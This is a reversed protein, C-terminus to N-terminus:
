GLKINKLSQLFAVVKHDDGHSSWVARLFDAPHVANDRFFKRDGGCGYMIDHCLGGKLFCTAKQIIRPLWVIGELSETKPPLDASSIEANSTVGQQEYLFYDRRAAAVLLFTEWDPEGYKVLDEAYDYVTIPRLGISALFKVEEDTFYSSLDRNGSQYLSVAKQHAARLQVTWANFEM